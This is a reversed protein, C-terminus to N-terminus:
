GSPNKDDAERDSFSQGNAHPLDAPHSRRRHGVGNGGQNPVGAYIMTTRVDSLGFLEPRYSYRRIQRRKMVAISRAPGEVMVRCGSCPDPLWFVAERADKTYCLTTLRGSDVQIQHLKRHNM